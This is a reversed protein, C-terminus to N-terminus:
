GSVTKAGPVKRIVSDLDGACDGLRRYRSAIEFLHELTMSM